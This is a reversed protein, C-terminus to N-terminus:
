ANRVQVDVVRSPADEVFAHADNDWDIRVCELPDITGYVDLRETEDPLEYDLAVLVFVKM